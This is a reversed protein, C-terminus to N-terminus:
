NPKEIKINPDIEYNTVFEHRSGFAGSQVFSKAEVKLLEGREGFWFKTTTEVSTKTKNSSNLSKKKETKEYVSANQGNLTETGLSKYKAQQAITTFQNRNTPAGSTKEEMWKGDGIRKYTKGDISIIELRLKTWGSTTKQPSTEFIYRSASSRSAFETITRSSYANSGTYSRRIESNPNPKSYGDNAAAYEESPFPFTSSISSQSQFNNDGALADNSNKQTSIVRYSSNKLKAIASKYISDFESRTIEKKQASISIFGFLILTICFIKKMM